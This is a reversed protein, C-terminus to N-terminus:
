KNSICNELTNKHIKKRLNKNAAVIGPGYTLGSLVSDMGNFPVEADEDDLKKIRHQRFQKPKASSSAPSPRLNMITVNKM